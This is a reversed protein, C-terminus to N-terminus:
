YEIQWNCDFDEVLATQIEKRSKNLYEPNEELFQPLYDNFEHLNSDVAKWFSESWDSDKNESPLDKETIVVGDNDEEGVYHALWEKATIKEVDERTFRGKNQSVVSKLARALEKETGTKLSLMESIEKYLSDSVELTIQKM